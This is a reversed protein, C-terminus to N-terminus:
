IHSMLRATQQLTNCHTATHQLTNCHTETHQLTNCHTATHQLTNCPTATHQLANCHTAPHQLTNCHTATHQLTDRGNYHEESACEPKKPRETPSKKCVIKVWCMVPSKKRMKARKQVHYREQPAKFATQHKQSSETQLVGHSTPPQPRSGFFHVPLPQPIPNLVM